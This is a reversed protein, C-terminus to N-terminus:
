PPPPNGGRKNNNAKQKDPMPAGPPEAGAEDLAAEAFMVMDDEM